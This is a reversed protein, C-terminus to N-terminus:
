TLWYTKSMVYQHLNGHFLLKTVGIRFRLEHWAAMALPERESASSWQMPWTNRRTDPWFILLQVISMKALHLLCALIGRDRKKVIALPISSPCLPPACSSCNCTPADQCIDSAFAFLWALDTHCRSVQVKRKAMEKALWCVTDTM